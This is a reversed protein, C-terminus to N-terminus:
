KTEPKNVTGYDGSLKAWDYRLTFSVDMTDGSASDLDGFTVDTPWCNYVNWTRVVEGDGNIQVIALNSSINKKTGQKGTSPDHVKQQWDYLLQGASPLSGAVDNKIFEYFSANITDYSSKGPTYM